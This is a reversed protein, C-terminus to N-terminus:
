EAESAPPLRLLRLVLGAAVKLTWVLPFALINVVRFPVATWMAVPETMQIALGKPALEGIVTHLFTIVTLSITTALTHVTGESVGGLREFLPRLLHAFAPEGLWGLSLSTLTIGLQSTSLYSPMQKTMSMLLRARRRGQNSLQQLRTPRIKVLAFEAAVFFANALVLLLSAILAFAPSM